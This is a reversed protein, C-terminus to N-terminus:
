KEGGILDRLGLSRYIECKQQHEKTKSPPQFGFKQLTEVVNTKAAPIYHFEKDLLRNM